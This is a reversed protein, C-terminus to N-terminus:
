ALVGVIPEVGPGVRAPDVDALALLTAGLQAPSIARRRPDLGGTTPDVGVGRYGEDYAGLTRGGSLGSGILLATTFPWHDRGNDANLQPTRAMESLVVVTTTDLLMLGDPGRTTALATVFGDLTAFLSEWLPSQQNDADTHTDWGFPPSVTVCRSLGLRLVGLATALQGDLTGDSALSVEGRLAELQSARVHAAVLDGRRPPGGDAWAASRRRVFDDVVDRSPRTLADVPKDLTDVLSGDVLQQLQGSAGARAVLQGLAGPYVPGGLVLHPLARGSDPEAVLTAFDAREGTAQGTMMTVQCVEHAVSRVDLGHVLVCRAAHHSFFNRVAPRRASDVLELGGIRTATSEIPMAINARGFLPTLANLPDWGGQNVVFVLRRRSGEAALARGILGPWAGLMAGAAVGHTVGRLFDRRRM